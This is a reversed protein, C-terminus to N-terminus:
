TNFDNWNLRRLMEFSFVKFCDTLKFESNKM